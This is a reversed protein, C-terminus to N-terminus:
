SPSPAPRPQPKMNRVLTALIQRSKDGVIKTAKRLGGNGGGRTVWWWYTALTAWLATLGQNLPDSTAPALAGSLFVLWM